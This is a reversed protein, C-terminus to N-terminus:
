SAHTGFWRDYQYFQWIGTAANPNILLNKIRNSKFPQNFTPQKGLVKM